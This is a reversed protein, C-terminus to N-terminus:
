IRTHQFMKVCLIHDVFLTEQKFDSPFATRFKKKQCNIGDYFVFQGNVYHLSTYHSKTKDWMNIMGLEFDQGSINIIKEMSTFDEPGNLAGENKVVLYLVDSGKEIELPNYTVVGKCGPKHCDEQTQSHLPSETLLYDNPRTTLLIHCVGNRQPETVEKTFDCQGKCPIGVKKTFKSLEEDLFNYLREDTGGYWTGDTSLRNYDSLITHWRKHSLASQNKEAHLVAESFARVAITTSKALQQIKAKFNPDLSSRLAFHTVTNDVPCTNSIGSGAAWTLGDIKIQCVTCTFNIDVKKGTSAELCDNHFESKCKKCTSTSLNKTVDPRNCYCTAKFHVFHIDDTPDPLSNDADNKIM